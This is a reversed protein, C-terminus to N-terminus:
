TPARSRSWKMRSRALRDRWAQYSKASLPDKWDYQAAIFLPEIAGAADNRAAGAIRVFRRDKTRIQIRRPKEPRSDAAAIAKRLLEAAQVSPTQRFRYFLVCILLLAVAVPAWRQAYLM